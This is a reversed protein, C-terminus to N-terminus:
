VHNKEEFNLHPMSCVSQTHEGTVFSALSKIITQRWIEAEGSDGRSLAARHRGELLSVARAIEVIVPDTM